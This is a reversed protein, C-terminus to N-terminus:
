SIRVNKLLNKFLLLLFFLSLIQFFISALIAYNKYASNKKNMNMKHSIKEDIKISLKGLENNKETINKNTTLINLFILTALNNLDIWEDLLLDPFNDDPEYAKLSDYFEYNKKTFIKINDKFINEFEILNELYNKDKNDIKSVLNKFLDDNQVVLSSLSNFILFSEGIADQYRKVMQYKIWRILYKTDDNRYNKSFEEKNLSRETLLLYNKIWYNRKTLFNELMRNSSSSIDELQLTISTIRQFEISLKNFEINGNRITDEKQIVLQDFVFSALTAIAVLIILILSNNDKARRM